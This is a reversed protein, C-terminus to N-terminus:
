AVHAWSKRHIVARITESHVGYAAALRSLSQEGNAYVARITRVDDETLKAQPCRRGVAFRKNAQQTEADAWRCNAAEYNGGPDIRDLTMGDPREGMDALFRAFGGRGLWRPDITVGRGGYYRYQSKKPNTCRQVMGNWSKYTPSQGGQSHGHRSEGKVLRDFMEGGPLGPYFDGGNEIGWRAASAAERVTVQQRKLGPITPELYWKGTRDRRVIEMDKYSAHVTRDALTV